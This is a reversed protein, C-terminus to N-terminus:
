KPALPLSQLLQRIWPEGHKRQPGGHPRWRGPQLSSSYFGAPGFSYSFGVESRNQWCYFIDWWSWSCLGMLMVPRLAPEPIDTRETHSCLRGSLIKINRGELERPGTKSTEQGARPLIRQQLTERQGDGGQRVGERQKEEAPAPCRSEEERWGGEASARCAATRNFQLLCCFYDSKNWM